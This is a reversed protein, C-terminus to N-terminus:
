CLAERLSTQLSRAPDLGLCVGFIIGAVTDWGSTAGHITVAELLHKKEGSLGDGLGNLFKHHSESIQGQALAQFFALSMRTTKQSAEVSLRGALALAVAKHRNGMKSLGMIMGALFDDGSPTLGHGLGILHRCRDFLCAEDYQGSTPISRRLDTATKFIRNHLLLTLVSKGSKELDNLGHLLSPIVPGLSEHPAHRDAITSLWALDERLSQRGQGIARLSGRWLDAHDLSIRYRGEAFIVEGDDVDFSEGTNLRELHWSPHAPLLLNLPGRGITESGICIIKQSEDTCYFCRPHSSLVTWRSSSQLRAAAMEGVCVAHITERLTRDTM